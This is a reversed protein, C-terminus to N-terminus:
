SVRIKKRKLSSPIDTTIKVKDIKINIEEVDKTNKFDEV